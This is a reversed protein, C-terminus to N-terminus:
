SQESAKEKRVFQWLTFVAFYIFASIAGFLHSEEVVNADILDSTFQNIEWSLESILKATVLLIILASFGKAQKFSLLASGVLFGHLAGSLGVYWHLNMLLHLLLVNSLMCFLMLIIRQSLKVTPQFLYDILILGSINLIWHYWGSHTFNATFLRWWQGNSVELSQYRLLETSEPALLQVTLTVIFLGIVLYFSKIQNPINLLKRSGSKSM